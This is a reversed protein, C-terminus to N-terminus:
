PIVPLPAPRPLPSPRGEREANEFESRFKRIMVTLPWSFSCGFLCITKNFEFTDIDGVDVLVKEAIGVDGTRAGRHDLRDFIDWVWKSGERCPTCQGCSEHRYFSMINLAVDVMDATDDFVIIAASGVGSKVPGRPMFSAPAMVVDLEDPTLVPMSTGGPIVAKLTHGERVGGALEILERLTYVLECEYLGPKRVHGTIQYILTGPYAPDGIKKFAEAGNAIIWPVYALTGINNITTPHGFAGYAAPFPPKPRPYGREGEISEMLATEEGCIYAGAGPHTVIDISVDTGLIHQGCLKASYLERIARDLKEMGEWMEGRIYIYAVRARIAYSAILVGELLLHPNHEILFRDKCTGPESEDANVCLYSPRKPDPQKPMFSWKMGTGFWAGGRGQLGSKTVEDTVQDPTMTALAKELARYYGHQRAVDLREIGRTECQSLIMRNQGAAM